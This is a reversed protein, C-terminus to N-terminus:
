GSGVGFVVLVDLVTDLDLEGYLNQKSLLFPFLCSGADSRVPRLIDVLLRREAGRVAAIDSGVSLSAQTNRNAGPPHQRRLSLRM